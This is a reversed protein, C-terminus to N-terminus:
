PRAPNLSQLPTTSPARKAIGFGLAEHLGELGFLDVGAGEFCDTVGADADIVEDGRM